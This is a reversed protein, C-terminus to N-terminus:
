NKILKTVIRKNGYFLEALYIGTKLFSVNVVNTKNKLTSSYVKEGLSNYLNLYVTQSAGSKRDVVLMEEVPNPYIKFDETELEKNGLIINTFCNDYDTDHWILMDQFYACALDMHDEYEVIVFMRPALPFLPGHVSGVGEVWVENLATIGYGLPDEFFIRKHYEGNVLISDVSNVYIYQANLSFNYWVSDGVQLNFNYLTYVINPSKKYYVIGGSDRVCGKFHFNGSFSSDLTYSIKEWVSGNIITDGNTGYVITRTEVFSPHSSDPHPYINIVFWRSSADNFLNTTQGFLTLGLLSIFLTFITKM